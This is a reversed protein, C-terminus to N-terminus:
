SVVWIGAVRVAENADPWPPMTSILLELPVDGTNRFQFHTGRHITLSVGDEVKVAEERHCQKRWVLGQGAIFFLTEEITRHTVAVSVQGAQLTCHSLGGGSLDHLLRIESGDPAPVFEFGLRSTEFPTYNPWSSMISRM